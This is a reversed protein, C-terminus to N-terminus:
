VEAGRKGTYLLNSLLKYWNPLAQLFCAFLCVFLGVKANDKMIPVVLYLTSTQGLHLMRQLKKVECM